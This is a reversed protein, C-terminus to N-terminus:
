SLTDAAAAKNMRAALRARNIQMCRAWQLSKLGLFLAKSSLLQIQEEGRVADPVRAIDNKAFERAFRLLKLSKEDIPEEVNWLLRAIGAFDRFYNPQRTERSVSGSPIEDFILQPPKDGYKRKERARLDIPADGAGDSAKTKRGKRGKYRVEGSIRETRLRPFFEWMRPDAVARLGINIAANLDADVIKAALRNQQAPVAAIPVFIQGGQKPLLLTLKPASLGEHKKQWETELLQQANRLDIALQRMQQQETTEEEGDKIRLRFCWPMREEFGATVEEARFGVIGSRSCFQSSYAAPVDLVPIGFPECLERVKDRIARHCWKMLRGNEQPSRGQTARYRSLDEIAVFDVPKDRFKEYVGHQDREHWLQAKNPPPKTLRVGLAQALIMHASQNVRQTKLEDLKDVLGPCPDSFDRRIWRKVQAEIWEGKELQEFAFYRREAQNLSQFRRRLEEVQEIRMLSLGRQGALLPKHEEDQTQTQALGHLRGEKERDQVREWSWRRKRLPLVRDAINLLLTPLESILRSHEDRLAMQLQTWNKEGATDRITKPIWQEGPAEGNPKQAPANGKEDEFGCTQRLEKLMGDRRAGDNMGVRWRAIRALRSQARRAVVILKDNQEPFSFERLIADIQSRWNEPPAENSHLVFEWAWRDGLLACM